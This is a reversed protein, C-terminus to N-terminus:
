IDRRGSTRKKQLAIASQRSRVLKAIETFGRGETVDLVGDKLGGVDGMEGESERRLLMKVLRLNGGMCALSLPTEGDHDLCNANVLGLELLAEATGLGEEGAAAALLLPAAGSSDRANLNARARAEPDRAPPLTLLRKVLQFYGNQAAIQLASAFDADPGPFDTLPRESSDSSLLLRGISPQCILAVLESPFGSPTRQLPKSSHEATRDPDEMWAKWTQAVISAAAVCDVTLLEDVLNRLQSPRGFATPCVLAALAKKVPGLAVDSFFDRKARANGHVIQDLAPQLVSERTTVIRFSSSANGAILAVAAQVWTPAAVCRMRQDLGVGQAGVLITWPRMDAMVRLNITGSTKRRAAVDRLAFLPASPLLTGSASDSYSSTDAEIVDEFFVSLFALPLGLEPVLARFLFDSLTIIRNSSPLQEVSSSLVFQEENEFALNVDLLDVAEYAPVKYVESGSVRYRGLFDGSLGFNVDLLFDSM